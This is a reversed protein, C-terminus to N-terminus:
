LLPRYLASISISFLWTKKRNLFLALFWTKIAKKTGLVLSALKRLTTRFDYNNSVIFFGFYFLPRTVDAKKPRSFFISGIDEIKREVAALMSSSPTM